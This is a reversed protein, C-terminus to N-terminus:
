VNLNVWPWVLLCFWHEERVQNENRLAQLVFTRWKIQLLTSFSRDKEVYRHRNDLISSFLLWLIDCQTYKVLMWKLFTDEYIWNLVCLKLLWAKMYLFQTYFLNNVKDNTMLASKWLTLLHESKHWLNECVSNEKFGHTKEWLKFKIPIIKKSLLCM